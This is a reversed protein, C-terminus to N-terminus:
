RRCEYIRMPGNRNSAFLIHRGDQSLWPDQEALETNLDTM